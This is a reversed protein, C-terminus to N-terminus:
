VVTVNVRSTDFRAVERSAVVINATNVPPSVTDVKFVTVDKVGPVSLPSCKLPLVIVDDGIGLLGGQAVIATKVLDEGDSPFVAPDVTVTVDVYMTLETPRSFGITHSIGQSDIVPTTTSGFALIGAPKAGFIAAGLDATTGGLVVVEFAKGPVGDGDTVLTVNEFVFAETVGAVALVDARIAEVTGSGTARLLQERRVRLAADTELDRGLTADLRNAAGTWGSVPTEIATLSFALAAIPGTEEATFDVLAFATGTGVFRWTVTNDVIATGTGTPGGSGASTGPVTVVYINGANTRVDGIAYVTSPAWATAAALTADAVSAFRDGSGQVSLVRGTPTASLLTGATGTCIVSSATSPQAALKTVGTLSAVNVLAEGTASDPYASRYVALAVEWLEAIKGNFVGAFQGAVSTALLNLGPDVTARLDDQVEQQIIQLTKQSFGASTVGFSM